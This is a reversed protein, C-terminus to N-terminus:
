LVEALCVYISPRTQQSTWRAYMLRLHVAAEPNCYASLCAARSPEIASFVAARGNPLGFRQYDTCFPYGFYPQNCIRQIVETIPRVRMAKHPSGIHIILTRVILVSSQAFYAKNTM